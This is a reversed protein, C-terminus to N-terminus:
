VGVGFVAEMLYSVLLVCVGVVVLFAADSFRGEPPVTWAAPLAAGSVRGLGSAGHPRRYEAESTEGRRVDARLQLIGLGVLVFGVVFLARKTAVPGYGIGLAIASTLAVTVTSLVVSAAILERIASATRM